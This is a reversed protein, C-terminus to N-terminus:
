IMMEVLLGASAPRRTPDKELARLVAGEVDSTV